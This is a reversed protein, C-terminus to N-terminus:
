QAHLAGSEALLKALRESINLPEPPTKGAEAVGLQGMVQQCRDEINELERWSDRAYVRTEAPLLSLCLREFRQQDLSWYLSLATLLLM